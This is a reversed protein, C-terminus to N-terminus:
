SKFVVKEIHIQQNKACRQAAGSCKPCFFSKNVREFDLNCNPCYLKTKILRVSLKADKLRSDKERIEDFYLKIADPDLGSSDSVSLFIEVIREKGQALTDKVIKELLHYEHV